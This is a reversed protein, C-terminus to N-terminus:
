VVLEGNGSNNNNNNNNNNNHNNNGSGDDEDLAALYLGFDFDQNMGAFADLDSGVDGGLPTQQGNNVAGLSNDNIGGLAGLGMGMAFEMGMGGLGMNGLGMNGFDMNAMSLDAPLSMQNSAPTSSLPMAGNAPTATSASPPSPTFGHTSTSHPNGDTVAIINGNPSPNLSKPTPAERQIDEKPLKPTRGAKGVKSEKKGEKGTGDKQGDEPIGSGSPKPTATRPPLMEGQGQAQNRRERKTTHRPSATPHQPPATGPVSRLMPDTTIAFGPTLPTAGPTAGQQSGPGYTMGFPSPAAGESIKRKRKREPPTPQRMGSPTMSPQVPTPARQGPGTPTPASNDDPPQPAEYPHNRAQRPGAQGQQYMQQQQHQQMLYAQQQQQQQQLHQQSQPQQQPPIQQHQANLMAQHQQHQMTMRYTQILRGKEDESMSKVDKSSLGLNQASHSMVGHNVNPVGLGEWLQNSANQLHQQQMQLAQERQQQAQQSQMQQQQQQQTRAQTQAQVQSHAQMQIQTLSEQAHQQAVHAQQGKMALHQSQPTMHPPQHQPLPTHQHPLHSQQLQGQNPPHQHMPTSVQPHTFQNQEDSQGPGQGPRGPHPNSAMRLQGNMAMGNMPNRAPQQVPSPTPMGGPHPQQSIHPSPNVPSHSSTRAGPPIGLHQQPQPHYMIQQGQLPQGQQSSPRAGPVPSGIAGPHGMRQQLMAAQQNMAQQNQQQQLQSQYEQIRQQIFQTAQRNDFGQSQAEQKLSELQQPTFVAQISQLIPTQTPQNIYVAPALGSQQQRVTRLEGMSENYISQNLVGQVGKGNTFADLFLTWWESLVGGERSDVPVGTDGLGSEAALQSATAMLNHKVLYDHIYLKLARDADWREPANQNHASAGRSMSPTLGMGGIGLRYDPHGGIQQMPQQGPGQQPPMPQQGQQSPHPQVAMQPTSQLQSQPTPASQPLHQHQRQHPGAGQVHQPHQQPPPGQQTQPPQSPGAMANQMWAPPRNMGKAQTQNIATGQPANPMGRAAASRPSMQGMPMGAMQQGPQHAYHSAPPFQNSLHPSPTPHHPSQPIPRQQNPLPGAQHQAQAQAQLQQQQQRLQMQQMQQAQQAAQLAQQQQQQQQNMGMGGMTMQQPPRALGYQQQQFQLQQQNQLPAQSQQPHPSQHLHPATPPQQNHFPAQMQGHFNMQPQPHPLALHIGLRSM